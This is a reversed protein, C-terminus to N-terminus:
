FAGELWQERLVFKRIKGSPTRPFEDVFYWKAPVKVGTLREYLFERLDDASAQRGSQLMVFAAPIEGYYADPLGIVAVEAVAEHALLQDEIEVPFINEGGRIIMEKSRGVVRLYGRTDITCV